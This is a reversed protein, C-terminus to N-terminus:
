GEAYKSLIADNKMINEVEKLDSPTDVSKIKDNVPVMRVKLGHEIVRMMDISEIQELVTPELKNFELLFDRQFPIICIQKKMYTSKPTKSVSPIPERSFYIADNNSDVVVKIENPDNFEEKSEINGLLNAVLVGSDIELPELAKDIMGPTILPEDGQVMLVIDYRCGKQEEIKLLAEACRDSCREHKDSTMVVKAGISTSYDKIERDCTAIFIDDVKESLNVRHFVHGVMPINCIKELPKGPFRSSGMRAPIIALIKKKM